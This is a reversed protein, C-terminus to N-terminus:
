NALVYPSSLIKRMAEAMQQQPTRGWPDYLVVANGDTVARPDLSTVFNAVPDGPNAGVLRGIRDCEAELEGSFVIPNNSADLLPPLIPVWLGETDHSLRYLANVLDFNGVAANFSNNLATNTMSAYTSYNDFVYGLTQSSAAQTQDVCGYRDVSALARYNPRTQPTPFLAINISIKRKVFEEIFKDGMSPIINGTFPDVATGRGIMSQIASFIYSGSQSCVLPPSPLSTSWPIKMRTPDSVDTDHICNALGDTFIFISNKAYLYTPTTAVDYLGTALAAQIDTTGPVPFLGRYIYRKANIPTDVDTANLFSLFSSDTSSPRIPISLNQRMRRIPYAVSPGTALNGRSLGEASRQNFYNSTDSDFAFVDLTDTNVNRDDLIKMGLNVTRLISFLPEPQSEVVSSCTSDACQKDHIAWKNTFGADNNVLNLNRLAYQYRFHLNRDGFRVNGGGDLPPPTLTDVECYSLGDWATQFNLYAHPSPAIQLLSQFPTASGEGELSVYPSVNGSSSIFNGPASWCPEGVYRGQPQTTLNPLADVLNYAFYGGYVGGLQPTYNQGVTSQSVDIAFVDNRNLLTAISTVKFTSGRIGLLKVFLNKIPNSSPLEITFRIANVSDSSSSLQAETIGRYIFCSTQNAPCKKVPTLPTPETAPESFVYQGPEVYGQSGGSVSNGKNFDKVGYNPDTNELKPSILKVNVQAISEMRTVAKNLACTKVNGSALPCSGSGYMNGVYEALGSMVANDVVEKAALKGSLLIGLDVALGIFGILPIALLLVLPLVAGKINKRTLM